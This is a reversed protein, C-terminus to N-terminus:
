CETKGVVHGNVVHIKSKKWDAPPVINLLDLTRSAGHFDWMKGNIEPEFLYGVEWYPGSTYPGFISDYSAKPQYVLWMDENNENILFPILDYITLQELRM